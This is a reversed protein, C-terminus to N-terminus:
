YIEILEKTSKTFNYYGNKEILVMDEIRCGYKGFLYIGPEVSTVMGSKLKIGAYRKSLGPSEHVYLGICHGLGHGFTDKYEEFSNIYDRAVKDAENCDVGERLFELARSQAELVTKYLKKMEFDAKGIVVTRTMDSLYGDVKAGFDLTLFGNELKCNRATGHPVSSAKGSIAITDFAVGDAGQKRILYDLEVAVEIETMAPTINKILQSFARDAIDQAAQIKAIEAPTKIERLRETIDGIDVFEIASYKETSKKYFKYSISGGEFGIRRVCHDRILKDLTESRPSNSKIVTFQKNARELASEYYRFDTVLFAETQSIYLLGDTFAYDCLYRQNLEDFILAADINLAKIKERFLFLKDM